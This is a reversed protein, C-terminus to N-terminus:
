QRLSGTLSSRDSIDTGVVVTMAVAGLCNNYFVCSLLKRAGVPGGNMNCLEGASPCSFSPKLLPRGEDDEEKSNICTEQGSNRLGSAHSDM